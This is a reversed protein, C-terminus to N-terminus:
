RAFLRGERRRTSMPAREILAEAAKAKGNQAAIALATLGDNDAADMKAGHALLMNVMEPQDNWAAYMLPHGAPKIPDIPDAKHEVLYTAVATFGFRAASVLTPYGEGDVANV